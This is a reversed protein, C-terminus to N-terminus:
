LGFAAPNLQNIEALDSVRGIRKKEKKVSEDHFFSARQMSM